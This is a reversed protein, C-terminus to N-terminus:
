KLFCIKRMNSNNLRWETQSEIPSVYHLPGQEKRLFNETLHSSPCTSVCTGSIAIYAIISTHAQYLLQVLLLYPLLPPLCLSVLRHECTAHQPYCFGPAQHPKGDCLLPLDQFSCILSLNNPSCQLPEVQRLSNLNKLYM